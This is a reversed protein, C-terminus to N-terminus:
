ITLWNAGDKIIECHDGPALDLLAAGDITKGDPADLRAIGQGINRALYGKRSSVTGYIPLHLAVIVDEAPNALLTGHTALLNTDVAVPLPTGRGSEVALAEALEGYTIRRVLADQHITLISDAPPPLIAAQRNLLYQLWSIPEIM